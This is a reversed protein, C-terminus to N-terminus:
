DSEAPVRRPGASRARDGGHEGVTTAATARSTSRSRGSGVRCVYICNQPRPSGVVEVDGFGAEALMRCALEAYSTFIRWPVPRRMAALGSRM